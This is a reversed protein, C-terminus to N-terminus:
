LHDDDDGWYEDSQKVLNDIAEQRSIGSPEHAKDWMAARDHEDLVEKARACADLDRNLRVVGLHIVKRPVRKDKMWNPTM